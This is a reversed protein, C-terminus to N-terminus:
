IDIGYKDFKEKDEAWREFETDLGSGGGTVKNWETLAAKYAAITTEWM